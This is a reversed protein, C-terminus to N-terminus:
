SMRDVCNPLLPAISENPYIVIVFEVDHSWAAEERRICIRRGEGGFLIHPSWVKVYEPNQYYAPFDEVIYVGKPHLRPWFSEFTARICLLRHCGDDIIVAFKNTDDDDNYSDRNVVPGLAANVEDPNTSDFIMTKIGSERPFTAIAPDIDAGMITMHRRFFERFLIMSGGKKVGVEILKMTTPRSSPSSSYRNQQQSQQVVSHQLENSNNTTNSPSTSSANVVRSTSFARPDNFPPLVVDYVFNYQHDVAKDTPLTRSSFGGGGHKRIVDTVTKYCCSDAENKHYDDVPYYSKFVCQAATDISIPSATHWLVVLLTSAVVILLFVKVRPSSLLSSFCSKVHHSFFSVPKVNQPSNNSTTASHM